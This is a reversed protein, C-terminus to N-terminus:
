FGGIQLPNNVDKNFNAVMWYDGTNVMTQLGGSQFQGQIPETASSVLKSGTHIAVNSGNPQLVFNRPVSRESQMVYIYIVNGICCNNSAEPFVLTTQNANVYVFSNPQLQITTNDDLIQYNNGDNYNMLRSSMSLADTYSKTVADKANTPDLLNKIQKQGASNNISLVSELTLNASPNGSTAAYLAYPVSQLQSIGMAVYNQGTTNLEIGLFYNGLSWNIESFIGETNTGKGIVLTVQGLDDTTVYHTETYIPVSTQSGQKINFRFSVNANLILDGNDNRVTAQYNFGQPEQANVNFSFLILVILYLYNKKTNIIKNINM